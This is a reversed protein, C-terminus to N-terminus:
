KDILGKQEAFQKIGYNWYIHDLTLDKALNNLFSPFEKNKIIKKESM